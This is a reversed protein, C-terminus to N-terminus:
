AAQTAGLEPLNGERGGARSKHSGADTDTGKVAKVGGPMLVVQVARALV